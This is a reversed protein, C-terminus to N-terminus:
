VITTTTSPRIWNVGNYWAISNSNTHFVVMGRVSTIGSTLDATSYHPLILAPYPSSLPATLDLSSRPQTSGIGVAPRVTNTNGIILYGTSSGPGLHLTNQQPKYFWVNRNNTEDYYGVSEGQISDESNGYLYTYTSGNDFIIQREPVDRIDLYINNGDAGSIHLAAVPNTTGIGVSSGVGLSRNVYVSGKGTSTGLHLVEESSDYYWVSNTNTLDYLGMVGGNPNTSESQFFYLENTGNNFRIRRESVNAELYIDGQRIDISHVPATTGIGISSGISLINNINVNSTTSISSPSDKKWLGISDNLSITVIGTNSSITVGIGGNVRSVYGGLVDSSIGSSTAYTAIGSRSSYTAIGATSAYGVGSGGGDTRNYLEIFNDNIKDGGDRLTDGTGDNPLLGINIEQRAM